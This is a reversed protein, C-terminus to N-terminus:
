LRHTKILVTTSLTAYIFNDTPPLTSGVRVLLRSNLTAVFCEKFKVPLTRLNYGSKADYAKVFGGPAATIGWPDEGVAISSVQSPGTLDSLLDFQHSKTAEASVGVKNCPYVVLLAYLKHLVKMGTVLNTMQFLMATDFLLEEPCANENCYQYKNYIANGANLGAPTAIPAGNIDYVQVIANTSPNHYVLYNTGNHFILSFKYETNTNQLLNTPIAVTISQNGGPPLIGPVPFIVQPACQACCDEPICVPCNLDFNVTTTPNFNPTVSIAGVSSAAINVFFEYGCINIIPNANVSLLVDPLSALFGSDDSTSIFIPARDCISSVPSIQFSTSLNWCDQVNPVVKNTYGGCDEDWALVENQISGEVRRTVGSGDCGIIHQICTAPVSEECIGLGEIPELCWDLQGDGDSDSPYTEGVTGGQGENLLELTNPVQIDTVLFTYATTPTARNRLIARRGIAFGALSQVKAFATEGVPPVTFDYIMLICDQIANGGSCDCKSIGIFFETGCKVPTGVLTIDNNAFSPNELEYEGEEWNLATRVVLTGFKEHSIAQGEALVVNTIVVTATYGVQPYTFQEDIRVFSDKSVQNNMAPAQPVYPPHEYVVQSRNKYSCKTCQCGSTCPVVKKCTPVSTYQHSKSCGCNGSCGCPKSSSAVVPTGYMTAVKQEPNDSCSGCNKKSM